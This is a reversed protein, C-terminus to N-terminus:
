SDEGDGHRTFLMAALSTLYLIKLFQIWPLVTPTMGYLYLLLVSIVVCSWAVGCLFFLKLM